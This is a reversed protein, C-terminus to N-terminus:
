NRFSRKDRRRDTLPQYAVRYLLPGLATVLALTVLIQAWFALGPTALWTSVGAIAL